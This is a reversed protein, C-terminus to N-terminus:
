HRFFARRLELTARSIRAVAAVQRDVVVAQRDAAAQPRMPAEVAAVLRAEPAVERAVVTRDEQLEARPVGARM